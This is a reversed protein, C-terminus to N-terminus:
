ELSASSSLGAGVPLNTEVTGRGGSMPRVVAVMAAVYRAWSPEYQGLAEPDFRVDLDVDAPDPEGASSLVVRFGGDPTFTVTTGLDVAMPLALGENYDTHDGILNVRGPSYGRVARHPRPKAPEHAEHSSM